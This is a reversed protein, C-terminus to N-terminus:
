GNRRRRKRRTSPDVFEHWDYRRVETSVNQDAVKKRESCKCEEGDRVLANCDECRHHGEPAYKPRPQPVYNGKTAWENGMMRSM